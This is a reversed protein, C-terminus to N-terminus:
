GVVKNLMGWIRPVSMGTSIMMQTIANGLKNTVIIFNDKAFGIKLDLVLIFKPDDNLDEGSLACVKRVYKSKFQAFSVSVNMGVDAFQKCYFAYATAIAVDDPLSQKEEVEPEQPAPEPQEAQEEEEVEVPATPAPAVVEDITAIPALPQPEQAVFGEVVPTQLSGDNNLELEVATEKKEEAPLYKVKLAEIHDRSMNMMLNRVIERDLPDIITTAIKKDILNDKLENARKMVVCVNGRVYGKTDDIREITPYRPHSPDGNAGAIITSFTLNTYDCTGHGLLKFGLLFIDEMTLTCELGREEANKQKAVLRRGLRQQEDTTFKSALTTMIMNGETTSLLHSLGRKNLSMIVSQFIRDVM